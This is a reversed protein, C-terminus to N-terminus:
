VLAKGTALRGAVSPAMRQTTGGAKGLLIKGQGNSLLLTPGAPIDNSRTFKGIRRFQRRIMPEELFPKRPGKEDDYAYKRTEGGARGGLYLQRYQSTESGLL